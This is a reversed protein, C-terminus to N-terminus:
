PLRTLRQLLHINNPAVVSVRADGECRKKIAKAVL